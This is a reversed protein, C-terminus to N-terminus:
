ISPLVPRVAKIDSDGAALSLESSGGALFRSLESIGAFSGTEYFRESVELTSLENRILMDKYVDALDHHGPPLESFVSKRFAGLGYDIYHMRPTLAGKDYDVIKGEVFEVNSRDFRGSNRYVTMLALKHSEMFKREASEYDCPLYSDGYVVFFAEELLPLANRIAGATGLQTPGDWAYKVTLGFADGQGVFDQILTGMHGLCLVISDIGRSKLLRLQHAIFPDGNIPILSKPITGTLPQLRTALGGALIAATLM